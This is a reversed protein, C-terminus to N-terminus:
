YVLGQRVIAAYAILNTTEYFLQWINERAHSECPSDNTGLGFARREKNM